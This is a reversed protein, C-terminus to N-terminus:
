FLPWQADKMRRKIMDCYEPNLEIGISKRGLEHATILTTGSGAFPDLVTCPVVWAQCNCTAKWDTTIRERMGALIRAKTASPDQARASAYNKTATGYYGGSSDAGCAAQWERLPEGLEVVREYPAGCESCCGYQSTGALIMPTILEPPFVAFHAGPFPRTSVTWVSRKNRGRRSSITYDYTRGWQESGGRYNPDGKKPTYNRGKKGGFDVKGRTITSDALPERIAENDYFYRENKSMLFVYEHATTPRDKVSEPMPNTKHWIIDSRLYWGDKRLAIAVEAPIMCLDKPKLGDVVKNTKACVDLKTNGCTATASKTSKARNSAYSDGVNLWLTGDRRLVRRAERFVVVLNNVYEEPTSELGLQGEVGYDRLGWYPPSTIICHVSEDEIQKLTELADGQILQIV